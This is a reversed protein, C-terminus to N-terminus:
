ELNKFVNLGLRTEKVDHTRVIHAGRQILHQTLIVSGVLREGPTKGGELTAVTSKRSVGVYIPLNLDKLKEFNRILDLDCSADRGQWGGFGPDISLRDRNIGNEEALTISQQLAHLTADMGCTDGPKSDAAMLVVEADHDALLPAMQPDQKLGSIDNVVDCGCSLAFKAVKAYQTDVSVALGYSRSVEVVHPLFKELRGLEVEVSAREGGYLNLPRTSMGGVDVCVAGFESMEQLNLEISAKTDSVSGSHFSEPSLNM